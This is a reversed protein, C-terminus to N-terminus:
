VITRSTAASSLSCSDFLFLADPSSSECEFFRELFLAGPGLPFFDAFPAFPTDTSEAAGADVLAAGLAAPPLPPPPPRPRPRGFRSSSLSNMASSSSIAFPSASKSSSDRLRSSASNLRQSVRLRGSSQSRSAGESRSSERSRSRSSCVSGGAEAGEAWASGASSSTAGTGSAQRM